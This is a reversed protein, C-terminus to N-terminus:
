LYTLGRLQVFDDLASRRVTGQKEPAVIIGCIECFIDAVVKMFIAHGEDGRQNSLNCLSLLVHIREKVEYFAGINSGLKHFHHTQDTARVRFDAIM